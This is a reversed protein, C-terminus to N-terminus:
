KKKKLWAHIQEGSWGEEVYELIDIRLGLWLIKKWQEPSFTCVVIAKDEKEEVLEKDDKKKVGALKKFGKSWFVQRKRFFATSYELYLKESYGEKGDMSDQLLEFPHRAAGDKRAGYLMENDAGWKGIYDSTHAFDQIKIAHRHFGEVVQKSETDLLGLKICIKEWRELVRAYLDDVDVDHGVVWAEHTHPHWGNKGITVELARILHQYDIREKEKEWDRGSRLYYLAKKQKDLLDKCSLFAYHPFTLTVMIVKYRDGVRHHSYAWEFGKSIEKKRREAIKPACVPCDWPSGCQMLGGWFAVGREESKLVKINDSTVKVRGCKAVRHMTYGRKGCEDIYITRAENRLKYRLDRLKNLKLRKLIEETMASSSPTNVGLPVPQTQNSFKPRIVPKYGYIPTYKELFNDRNPRYRNSLSRYITFQPSNEGCPSINRKKPQVNLVQQTLTNM